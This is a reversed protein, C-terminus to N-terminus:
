ILISPEFEGVRFIDFQMGNSLEGSFPEDLQGSFPQNKSFHFDWPLSSAELKSVLNKNVSINRSKNASFLQLSTSFSSHNDKTKANAVGKKVFTTMNLGLMYARYILEKESDSIPRSDFLEYLMDSDKKQMEAHKRKEREAVVAKKNQSTVHPVIKRKQGKTIKSTISKQGHTSKSNSEESFEDLNVANFKEVTKNSAPTKFLSKDLPQRGWIPNTEEYRKESVVLRSEDQFNETSIKSYITDNNGCIEMKPHIM